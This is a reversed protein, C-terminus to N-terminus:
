TRHNMSSTMAALTMPWAEAANMRTLQRVATKKVKKRRQVEGPPCLHCFQCNFGARCGDGRHMFDCPKCMGLCHGSSGISPCRASGSTEEPLAKALQILQQSQAGGESDASSVRASMKLLDGPCYDDSALSSSEAAEWADDTSCESVRADKDSCEYYREQAEEMSLVSGPGFMELGPPPKFLAPELLQKLNLCRTKVSEATTSSSDSGFCKASPCTCFMTQLDNRRKIRPHFAHCFECDDGATCPQFKEAASQHHYRNQFYCIRRRQTPDSLPKPPPVPEMLGPPLPLVPPTLGPPVAPALVNEAESALSVYMPEKDYGASMSAIAVPAM